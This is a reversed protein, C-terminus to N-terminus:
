HKIREWIWFGKEVFNAIEESLPRFRVLFCWKRGSDRLSM